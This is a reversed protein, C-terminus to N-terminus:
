RFLLILGPGTQKVRIVRCANEGLQVDLTGGTRITGAIQSTATKNGSADYDDAWVEAVDVSFTFETDRRILFEGMRKATQRFLVEDASLTRAMESAQDFTGASAIGDLTMVAKAENGVQVEFAAGAALDTLVTRGKESGDFGYVVITVSEVADKLTVTADGVFTYSPIVAFDEAAAPRPGDIRFHAFEQIADGGYIEVPYEAGKVSFAAEAGEAPYLYSGSVGDYFGLRGDKVCPRFDHVVAVAAGETEKEFIQLRRLDYSAYDKAETGNHNAFLYYSSSANASPVTPATGGVVGNWSVSPALYDMIVTNDGKAVSMATYGSPLWVQGGTGSFRCIFRNATDNQYGIVTPQNATALDGKGYDLSNFDIQLGATKPYDARFKYGTDFFRTGDGHLFTAFRDPFAEIGPVAGTLRLSLREGHREVSGTFGTPVGSVVFQALDFEDSVGCILDYAGAAKADAFALNIAGAEPLTVEGIVRFCGGPVFSLTAGEGIELNACYESDAVVRTGGAAVTVSNLWRVTAPAEPMTFAATSGLGSAVLARNDDRVLMWGDAAGASAISVEGKVFIVEGNVTLRWKPEMSFATTDAPILNGTQRDFIGTVGDVVGPIFDHALVVEGDEATKEFFQLRIFDFAGFDVASGTNRGFLYYSYSSDYSTALAKDTNVNGNWSVSPALYDMTVTNEGQVSAFNVGGGMNWVYALNGQYRCMFKDNGSQFGLITRNDTQLEGKAYDTTNFRVMLKATKPYSSGHYRYGTDIVASGDGSLCNATADPRVRDEATLVLVLRDGDKQLTGTFDEPLAGLAFSSLNWDQPLNEVLVYRGKGHAEGLSVTASGSAPLVTEAPSLAVSGDFVLEAGAALTLVDPKACKDTVRFAQGGAVEIEYGFLEFGDSTPFLVKETTVDYLGPKGEAFCPKYDHVVKEGEGDFEYIAFEKLEFVSLDQAGSWQSNYAFIHCPIKDDKAPATIGYETGNWNLKGSSCDIEVLNDGSAAAPSVGGTGHWVKATGSEYRCFLKTDLNWGFIARNAGPAVPGPETGKAGDTTYFNCAIRRTVGFKYTYGTNVYGVGDSRISKALFDPTVCEALGAAVACAIAVMAKMGINM